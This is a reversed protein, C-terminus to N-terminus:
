MFLYRLIDFFEHTGVDPITEIINKVIESQMKEILGDSNESKFIMKLTLVAMNSVCEPNKDTIKISKCVFKIYNSIMEKYNKVTSLPEFYYGLCLLFRSKVLPTSAITLNNFYNQFLDKLKM